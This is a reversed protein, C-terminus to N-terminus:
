VESGDRGDGRSGRGSGMEGEMVDLGEIVGAM